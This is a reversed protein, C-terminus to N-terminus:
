TLFTNQRITGLHSHRHQISPRRRRVLGGRPLASVGMTNLAATGPRSSAPIQEHSREMLMQIRDNIDEQQNKLERVEKELSSIADMVNRRGSKSQIIIEQKPIPMMWRGREEDYYELNQKVGILKFLKPLFPMNKEIEIALQISGVRWTTGETATVASYSDTLMAILLNLLIM